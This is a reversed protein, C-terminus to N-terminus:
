GTASGRSRLRASDDAPRLGPWTAGALYGPLRDLCDSWGTAHATRSHEDPFGTHVLVLRTGDEVCSLQVRVTTETPDGAWRWTFALRHPPDIELYEGQVAMQGPSEIRLTGGPRLDAVVTTNMSAPWFWRALAGADTLAQWVREPPAAFTREIRLETGGPEGGRESREENRRHESATPETM